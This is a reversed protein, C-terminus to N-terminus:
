KWEELKLKLNEKEGRRLLQVVIEEGPVTDELIDELTEKETITHNNCALLIDSEKIGAKEAAIKQAAPMVAPAAKAAVIGSWGIRAKIAPAALWKRRSAM